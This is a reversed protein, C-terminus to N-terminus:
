KVDVEKIYYYGEDDRKYFRRIRPIRKTSYWEWIGVHTKIVITRKYKKHGCCCGLTIIGMENLKKIRNRMCKDIRPNPIKYETKKCM